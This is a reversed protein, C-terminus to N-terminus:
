RRRSDEGRTRPHVPSRERERDGRGRRGRAHPPSGFPSRQSPLLRVTKGARAPTFREGDDTLGHPVVDEGRTRPHVAPSGRGSGRRRTKGARAPTFRIEGDNGAPLRLRGRAHPPSGNKLKSQAAVLPRGRAHPPSGRYWSPRCYPGGDEGRTRPHVSMTVAATSRPATKGARAPTFRVKWGPDEPLERRGRAHPPSGPM